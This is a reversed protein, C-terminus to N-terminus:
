SRNPHFIQLLVLPFRSKWGKTISTLKKCLKHLDNKQFINDNNDNISSIQIDFRGPITGLAVFSFQGWHRYRFIKREFSTDLQFLSQLEAIVLIDCESSWRRSKSM